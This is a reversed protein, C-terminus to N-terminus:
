FLLCGAKTEHAPPVPAIGSEPSPEDLTEGASDRDADKRRHVADPPSGLDYFNGDERLDSYGCLCSNRQHAHPYRPLTGHLALMEVRRMELGGLYWCLCIAVLVGFGAIYITM